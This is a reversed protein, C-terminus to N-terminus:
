QIIKKTIQTFLFTFLNHLELADCVSGCGGEGIKKGLKIESFKLTWGKQMLKVNEEYSELTKRALELDKRIRSMKVHRSWIVYGIFVLSLLCSVILITLVRTDELLHTSHSVNSNPNPTLEVVGV